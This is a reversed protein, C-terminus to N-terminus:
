DTGARTSIYKHAIQQFIKSPALINVSEIIARKFHEFKKFIYVLSKRSYKLSVADDFDLKALQPLADLLIWNLFTTFWVLLRM